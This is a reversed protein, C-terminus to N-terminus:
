TEEKLSQLIDRVIKKPLEKYRSIEKYCKKYFVYTKKDTELPNPLTVKSKSRMRYTRLNAAEVFYFYRKAEHIFVLRGGGVWRSNVCGLDIDYLKYVM